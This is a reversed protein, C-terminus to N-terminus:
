SITKISYYNYSTTEKFGCSNYLSLAVRNKAEVEILVDSWNESVLGNVTHTLIQRGYGRGRYEALVGFAIVYVRRDEAVVGICGIPKEALNAIYFRHTSSRLDRKVREFHMEIPNEFSRAVLQVLLDLDGFDAKRLRVAGEISRSPKGELRMRYESHRYEGGIAQAFAKGSASKDESVLLFKQMGVRTCSEKAANVLSRGIGKRRHQPDVIVYAEADPMEASGDFPFTLFGTLKEADYFHFHHGHSAMDKTPLLYDLSESWNCNEALNRADELQLDTLASTELIRGL